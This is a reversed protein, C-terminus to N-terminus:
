FSLLEGIVAMTGPCRLSLAAGMNENPGIADVCGRYYGMSYTCSMLILVLIIAGIISIKKNM